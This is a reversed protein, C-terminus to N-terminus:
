RRRPSPPSARRWVMCPATGWRRPGTTTPPATLSAAWTLYFAGTSTMAQGTTANSYSGSTTGWEFSVTVSSATGLTTLDGNLRGSITTISSAANTTVAPPTLTTFSREAGYVTSDGVAKARYYYTTGPTLSGLDSYFTGIVTRAAGSTENPYSGSSTGWVFSVTVSGATGLSTLDGNLRASITTISTAANTTVAPPTLTTFSREVGYVTSDGVAKARYYYTTSHALSGLDFYFTGTGTM